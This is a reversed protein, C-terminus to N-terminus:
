QTTGAAATLRLFLAHPQDTGWGVDLKVGDPELGLQTAWGHMRAFSIDLEDLPGRHVEHVYRAAPLTRAVMGEPVPPAQAGFQAGLLQRHTGNGLDTSVGIFAEGIKGTLEGSRELLREWAAPVATRLEPFPIDVEIGVVQIAPRDVMDM